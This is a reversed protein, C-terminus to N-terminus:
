IGLIKMLNKKLKGTIVNYRKMRRIRDKTKNRRLHRMGRTRVLLKGTKTVKIRRTLSKRSKQKM